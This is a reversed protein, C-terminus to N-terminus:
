ASETEKDPITFYFTSGKGEQSDLWMEGGHFEVAKKFIALGVGTGSFQERRNLRRFIEFVRGHYKPDIGIGNDRVSFEWADKRREANVWIEPQGISFKLANSLLNQFIQILLTKHATVTPLNSVHIRANRQGITAELNKLVYTICANLDVQQLPEASHSIHAYALIDQILERMRKAGDTIFFIYQRTDESIDEGLSKELLAAYNSVMRLPEQLDHSCIHAFRELETNSRTLETIVRGIRQEHQRIDTTMQNFVEVLEGLEDDSTKKAYVEQTRDRSFTRTLQALETIPQSISRQFYFSLPWVALLVSVILALKFILQRALRAQVDDLKRELYLMGLKRDNHKIEVFGRVGSWGSVIGYAQVEPCEDAVDQRTYKAFERDLENYVCAMTIQPNVRLSALNERAAKPDIFELAAQSQLAIMEAEVQMRQISVTLASRWNFISEVVTSLLLAACCIGTIIILLKIRIPLSHFRSVARAAVAPASNAAVSTAVPVM